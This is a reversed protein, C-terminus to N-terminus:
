RWCRKVESYWSVVEFDKMHKIAMYVAAKHQKTEKGNFFPPSFFRFDLFQRLNWSSGNGSTIYQADPIFFDPTPLKREKKIKNIDVKQPHVGVCNILLLSSLVLIIQFLKM